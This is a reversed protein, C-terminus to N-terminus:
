KKEKYGWSVRCWLREWFYLTIMDVLEVALGSMIAELVKGSYYWVAFGTSFTAILTFLTTKVITRAQTEKSKRLLAKMERVESAAHNDAM